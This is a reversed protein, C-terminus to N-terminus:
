KRSRPTTRNQEQQRGFWGESEKKKRIWAGGVFVEPLANTLLSDMIRRWGGVKQGREGKRDRGKEEVMERREVHGLGINMLM